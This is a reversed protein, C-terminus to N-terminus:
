AALTINAAQVGGTVSTIDTVNLTGTSGAVVTFNPTGSLTFGAPLYSVASVGTATVTGTLNTNRVTVSVTITSSAAPNSNSVSTNLSLDVGTNTPVVFNPAGPTNRAVGYGQTSTFGPLGAGNFDNPVWQASNGGTSPVGLQQGPIRSAGGVA